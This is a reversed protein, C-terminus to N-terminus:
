AARALSEAREDASLPRVIGHADTQSLDLHRPRALAQGEADTLVAVVPRAPDTAAAPAAVVIGTAGSAMEVMTGVPYFSLKLLLAARARDLQGQEALLLVDALATRTSRAPRHPRPCCMAAYADCVALLRSLPKFHADKMGDPYGTGDLREHHTAVADLIAPSDRFLGALHQVGSVPHA